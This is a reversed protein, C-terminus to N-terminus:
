SPHGEAEESCLALLLPTLRREFDAIDLKPKVLRELEFGRVFNV